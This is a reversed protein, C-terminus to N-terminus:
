RRPKLSPTRSNGAKFAETATTWSQTLEAVGAKASALKDATMNAPLKKAQSLIDVRAKIADLVQPMGGSLGEWARTLEAKKTAVAASLDKAKAPLAQAETLTGTYDGKGFKEKASALAAELTRAQEPMYRAAEGKVATVAEDAAKLAAEAPGKDSACAVALTAILGLMLGTRVQRRM